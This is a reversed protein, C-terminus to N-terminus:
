SPTGVAETAAAAPEADQLELARVSAAILLPIAVIAANAPVVAGSDNMLAGILMMVGFAVMGPRLVPSRDYALQLPRVGWAAPKSLVFFVFAAAFPLLASLYSTFLIKINQDAKRKIVSGAGGDIVSQVFRGLHTRDGPARLWDLVGLAVLVAVTVLAILLARRWTVKVGAVMLALVAFAPIIAPPGGFDSGLGPAGDVLTALVGILGIAAAAQRRRGARVLHDGLAIAILLSGTAFLAFSPNSFGYFRGAVIPQVGMLSSLLLHSGTAVDLALIVATIAGVAGLPGLVARRWPGLLAVAAIPIMFMIVIGTVVLRPNEYRWWPFLNALFTAAPFTAFVVAARRLGSLTHRRALAATAPDDSRARRRLVLTAAGYLV